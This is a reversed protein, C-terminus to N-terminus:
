SNNNNMKEKIKKIENIGKNTLHGKEKIILAAKRWNEFELRKVGQLRYKELFPIIKEEIDSFKTVTYVVLPHNKRHILRGAQLYEVIRTMLELDRLHQSIQFILTVQYGVKYINSERISILFCGEGDIFGALWWPNILSKDVIPRSVPKTAPFGEKLELSLGINISAKINLIKQLGEMCFHENQNILEIIQNFLIFDARKNTLLLNKFFFPIIVNTLDSVSNVTYYAVSHSEKIYISGIGGFSFQIRKLLDLDKKHLCIVFRALVKWGIKSGKNKLVSVSFSSEGDSFGAVYNNDLNKLSLNSESLSSYLKFSNKIFLDSSKIINLTNSKSLSCFVKFNKHNKISLNIFLIYLSFNSYIFELNLLGLKLFLFAMM